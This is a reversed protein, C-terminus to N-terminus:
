RGGERSPILGTVVDALREAADLRALGRAREAARALGDHDVLIAILRQALTEASCASEDLVWAAGKVALSEANALQHDDISNPLPIILAPRGAAALEAVSSAGSRCMVLHAWEYRVPMDDFFPKLEVALGLTRYAASVAELDEARVQQVLKLRRRLDEPLLALAPPTVRGFVRAGQSGGFVLLHLPGGAEPARYTRGGVESIAARVPNGTVTKKAAPVQECYRVTEFSLAVRNARKMLLRNARGAVANQEHVVTRIRGWQAALIPPLSPYGGFGVAVSPRLRKLLNRSQLVGLMLRLSNRARASLGKGAIGGSAIRHVPVSSLRGAFGGGREDTVLDVAYGRGLLAGALAEAPFLHGGTGGAALLIRMKDAAGSM